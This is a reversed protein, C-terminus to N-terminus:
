KKLLKRMEIIAAVEAETVFMKRIGLSALIKGPTTAHMNNDAAFEKPSGGDMIHAVLRSKLDDSM